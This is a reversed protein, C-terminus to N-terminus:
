MGSQSFWADLEAFSSPAPLQVVQDTEEMWSSVGDWDLSGVRSTLRSIMDDNVFSSKRIILKELRVGLRDQIELIRDLADFVTIDRAEIVLLENFDIKEVCLDRLNPMFRQRGHLSLYVTLFSCFADHTVCLSALKPFSTNITRWTPNDLDLDDVISLMSVNGLAFRNFMAVLLEKSNTNFSLDLVARPALLSLHPTPVDWIMFRFGEYHDSLAIAVSRLVGANLVVPSNRLYESIQRLPADYALDQRCGLRLYRLNPASLRRLISLCIPASDLVSLRRLSLCLEPADVNSLDDKSAGVMNELYLDELLPMSQVSTFLKTISLLGLVGHTDDYKALSTSTLSLARITPRVFTDNWMPIPHQYQLQILHPTASQLFSRPFPWQNYSQGVDQIIISQIHPPTPLNEFIFHLAQTDDVLIDKSRALLDNIYDKGLVVIFGWLTPSNLAARRWNYCVHTVRIWLYPRGLGHVGPLDGEAERTKVIYYAFIAGLVNPPFQVIPSHANRERQISAIHRGCKVIQQFITLREPSPARKSDIKLRELEEILSSLSSPDNRAAMIHPTLLVTSFVSARPQLYIFPPPEKLVETTKKVFM